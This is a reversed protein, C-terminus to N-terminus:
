NELLPFLAPPGKEWQGGPGLRITTTGDWVQRAPAIKRNPAQAELKEVVFAISKEPLPLRRTESWRVVCSLGRLLDYEYFRPFVPQLVEEKAVANKSLSFVLRREILYRAGRDLAA